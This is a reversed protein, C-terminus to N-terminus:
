YFKGKLMRKMFRKVLFLKANKLRRRESLQLSEVLDQPSGQLKVSQFNTKKVSKLVVEPRLADFKDHSLPQCRRPKPTASYVPLFPPSISPLSPKSAKSKGPSAIIPSFYRRRPAYIPRKEWPYKVGYSGVGPTGGRLPQKKLRAAHARLGGPRQVSRSRGKDLSAVPFPEATLLKGTASRERLFPVFATPSSSCSLSRLDQFFHLSGASPSIVLDHLHRKLRHYASQSIDCEQEAKM